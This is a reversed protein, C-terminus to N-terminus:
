QLKQSIMELYYGLFKRQNQEVLEVKQRLDLSVRLETMLKFFFATYGGIQPSLSCFHPIVLDNRTKYHSNVARTQTVLHCFTEVADSGPPGRLV